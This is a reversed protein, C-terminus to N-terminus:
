AMANRNWNRPRARSTQTPEGGGRATDITCLAQPPRMCRLICASRSSVQQPQRLSSFATFAALEAAGGWARADCSARLSACPCPWHPRRKGVKPSAFSLLPHAAPRVDRGASTLLVRRVDFLLSCMWDGSDGEGWGERGLPAFSCPMRASMAVPQCMWCRQGRVGAREWLPSPAVGCFPAM